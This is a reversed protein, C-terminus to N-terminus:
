GQNPFNLHCTSRWSVPFALRALDTLELELLSGMEFCLAYLSLLCSADIQMQIDVCVHAGAKACVSVYYVFTCVCVYVCVYVCLCVCMCVCVYVCVYVCVCMCVCVYVCVYVCVCV